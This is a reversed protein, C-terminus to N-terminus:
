SPRRIGLKKMRAELTTPKLNLLEAAAGPGSVRWNVRELIQVIYDREMDELTASGALGPPPHVPNYQGTAWDGLVLTSGTSVIVSREILNALERINGPWPYAQLSALVAAPLNDIRKGLRGAYLAVFHDVLLPIDERRDRLPPTRIPFVNLRYYLDQRFGGDRTVAPLDRHTAAILRVDVKITQNGGVRSFEGDQLVRLLKVQLDLPLDGVEDLFLTGKDALEFRGAKRAIAGTFAGKEHGFLESEVLTPSIAGCNIAILPRGARASRRHIARAILEKGTGTEGTILVTTDTGAVQGIKELVRRITESQGIIEDGSAGGGSSTDPLEPLVVGDTVAVWAGTILDATVTAILSLGPLSLCFRDRVFQEATGPRELTKATGLKHLPWGLLEPVPRDHLDAFAQNAYHLSTRHLMEDVIVSAPATRPLRGEVTYGAIPLPFPGFFREAQSSTFDM